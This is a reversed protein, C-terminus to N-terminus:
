HKHDHDHGHHEAHLEELMQKKKAGSKASATVILSPVGIDNMVCPILVSFILIPIFLLAKVSLLGVGFSILYLGAALSSLLIHATHTYRSLKRVYQSLFYGIVAGTIIFTWSLVPEDIVCLHFEMNYNLFLGGIYPFVVDSLSCTLASTAIALGLGTIIGTKYRSFLAAPTLSAFFLHSIFFGEFLNESVLNNGSSPLFTFRAIIILIAAIFVALVTFWIHNSLEVAFINKHEHEVIKTGDIEKTQM